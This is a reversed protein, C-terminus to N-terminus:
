HNQYLIRIANMIAILAVGVDAFVAEWMGILGLSGLGLVLGKVMFVLMLNQIIGKHNRKAIHLVDDIKNMDDNLLVVNSADIALDSGKLGMAIGCHSLSLAASDNVGDGVFAVKNHLMLQEIHHVKDEPLLSAYAQDLQLKSQIYNVVNAHDGSLVATTIGQKKLSEVLKHSSEKIQDLIGIFQLPKEDEYIGIWTCYALESPIYIEDQPHIRSIEILKGKYKVRMGSGLREQVDSLDIMSGSHAYNQLAFAIPHQSHVELSKILSLVYNSDDHHNIVHHVNLQGQTLTGTKDFVVCTIHKASELAEGGKFLIGRQSAYGMSAFYSLPVSIVLACPCSVVLFVLSRYLAENFTLGLFLLGLCMLIAMAVVAPTYFAAFRTLTTEFQGKKENAENLYRHLKSLSTDKYLTDVRILLPHQLNIYGALVRDNIDVDLPISEGSMSSTDLASQGEIVVGDCAVKSGVPVLLIQDLKVEHPQVRTVQHHDVILAESVKLDLLSAIHYRSRNVAKDQFYQGVTYFLMVGVAEPWENIYIAGLTAISMLFNEDFWQKAILRKLAKILVPAGIYLYSAFVLVYSLPSSYLLSIFLGLTGILIKAIWQTNHNEQLSKSQSQDFHVIVDEISTIDKELSKKYDDSLDQSTKLTIKSTSFNLSAFIVDERHNLKQEIKAACNACSLGELHIEIQNM